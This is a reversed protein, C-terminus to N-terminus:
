KIRHRIVDTTAAGSTAEWTESRGPQHWGLQHGWVGTAAERITAEVAPEHVEEGPAEGTTGPSAVVTSAVVPSAFVEGTTADGTSAEVKTAEWTTAEWTAAEWTAADRTTAM